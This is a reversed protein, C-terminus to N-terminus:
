ARAEADYGLLRDEEGARDVVVQLHGARVGVERLDDLRAAHRLDVAEDLLKRLAVLRDDALVAHAEGAALALADRDRAGEQLPGLDQDEVLRAAIEVLVGRLAEGLGDVLELSLHGQEEDGVVKRAAELHVLHEAEARALSRFVALWAGGTRRLGRLHHDNVFLLCGSSDLFSVLCPRLVSSAAPAFLFRRRWPSRRLSFLEPYGTSAPRCNRGAPARWNSCRLRPARCPM